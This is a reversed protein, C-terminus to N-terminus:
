DINVPRRKKKDQYFNTRHILESKYDNTLLIQVLTNGVYRFGAAAGHLYFRFMRVFSEPYDKKIIEINEEFKKAWDDLTLAYHYRLNEVDVIHLRSSKINEVPLIMESLSPVYIGPFVYKDMWANVKDPRIRSVSHVLALGGPKLVQNIVGYFRSYNEKGIHEFMGISVFKDCQDVHLPINRYDDLIYQIQSQRIGAEQAKQRAYKIQEKSINFSLVKCGYNQAAHLALGGWGCGAEVLTDASQLNLKRCIIDLKNEQAEDLGSGIGPYIACTYQMKKDLWLSFFENGLDYHAEINKSSGKLTNRNTLFTLIIKLKEPLSPRIINDTLMFGLETMYQMNGVIDITERMYNEGFGLSGKVLLDSIAKNKKFIIQFVPPKDSNRYKTHDPFIVEFSRTYSVRKLIKIFQKKASFLKMNM